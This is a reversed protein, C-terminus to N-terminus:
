SAGGADMFYAEAGEPLRAPIEEAGFVRLENTLPDIKGLRLAYRQGIYVADGLTDRTARVYMQLDPLALSVFGGGGLDVVVGEFTRERCTRQLYLLKWYRPRFRQVRGVAEIRASLEPLRAELEGRSWRPAGTRLLCELQALNVLDAYRRLPSTVPAYAPAALTAHPRPDPETLTPPLERVVRQISPPDDHVGRVEPPLAADQTRFLMAAGHGVAYQAAATNGLIMFESVMLQSRPYAPCLGMAVQVNDPYGTLVIDPEPREIIVAGRELRKRRLTVALRHGLALHAAVDPGDLAAEVAAYTSNEALRVFSKRMAFGLIEGAADFDWAMVLAPRVQGALLSYLGTGLAEPLMHSVGEPLYLSTARAAVATDLPGGFDWDLAPDALALILRIGGEELAEAYFADDIDRTTPSDVSVFAIPEPERCLAALGAKRAEVEASFPLWWDDGPAYDAQDLLYNYHPPVIGWQTALIYPQLPHEPLGKRLMAWLTAAEPDEADAMLRRLLEALRRAAEPDLRAALGQAKKRDGSLWGQWLEKFFAQGAVVVKEREEALAAEVLRREVLEAPFVEFKPPHFKFHTKCALLARGMAAVADVDPNEGVLGAFWVASEERVEGQALEWLELPAIARAAAERRAQHAALIELIESRDKAGDYRPGMWPLVRSLAMKEERRTLTYLRLRGSSEELVWAVQAQNGQMYEVLCGPGAYRELAM